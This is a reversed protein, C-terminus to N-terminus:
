VAVEIDGNGIGYDDLHRRIAALFLFWGLPHNM